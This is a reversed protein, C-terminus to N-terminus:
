KRELDGLVILSELDEFDAPCYQSVAARTAARGAADAAGLMRSVDALDQVREAELTMIVLHPLQPYPLGDPGRVAHATADDIWPAAMALLAPPAAGPLRWSSGGVPLAGLRQGGAASLAQEAAALDCRRVLVDVDLTMREPMYLRTALGGVVVFPM